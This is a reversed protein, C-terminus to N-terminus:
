ASLNEPLILVRRGEIKLRGQEFLAIAKPYIRHEVRHIKQELTELTDDNGIKVPEQLIIPGSDMKETVFHVTVGTVKVGYQFAEQIAHRGKFAPLLSPHINLIRDRFKKVFFPTLLRMYGALVIFDAQERKLHAAMDRDVSQANTYDEPACVVTKLGARRAKELGPAEHRSSIVLVPESVIVGKKYAEIIAALNSGQGSIFVAFRQPVTQTMMLRDRCRNSQSDEKRGAFFQNRRRM